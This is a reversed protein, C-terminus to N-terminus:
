NHFRRSRARKERMRKAVGHRFKKKLEELKKIQEPTLISRIDLLFNIHDVHMDTRLKSIDRIMKEVKARNIKDNKLYADFKIQLVNVESKGRISSEQYALHLKEIKAVQDATLGIEDKARLLVRPSFLNKEAMRIGFRMHKMMDPSRFKASLILSFSILM